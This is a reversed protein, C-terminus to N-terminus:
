EPTITTELNNQWPSSRYGNQPSELFQHGPTIWPRDAPDGTVVVVGAPPPYSRSTMVRTEGRGKNGPAALARGPNV